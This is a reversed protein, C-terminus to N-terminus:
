GRRRRLGLLGVSLLLLGVASSPLVTACKSSEAPAVTPVTEPQAEPSVEPITAGSPDSTTAGQAPKCMLEDWTSAGSTRCRQTYGQAELAECSERGGYWADCMQCEEGPKQQKEATCSEVYGPPPAIDALALGTALLLALM